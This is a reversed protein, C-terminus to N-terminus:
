AVEEVAVRVTGPRTGALSRWLDRALTDNQRFFPANTRPRAFAAV